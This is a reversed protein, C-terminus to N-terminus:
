NKSHCCAAKLQQQPLHGAERESYAYKYNKQSKKRADRMEQMM